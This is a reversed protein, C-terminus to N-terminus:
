KDNSSVGMKGLEFEPIIGNVNTNVISYLTGNILCYEGTYKGGYEKCFDQMEYSHLITFTCLGGTILFVVM